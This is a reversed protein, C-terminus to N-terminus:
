SLGWSFPLCLTPLFPHKSLTLIVLFGVEKPPSRPYSTDLFWPRDLNMLSDQNLSPLITSLTLCLFCRLSKKWFSQTTQSGARTGLERLTLSVYVMWMNVQDTIKTYGTSVIYYTIHTRYFVPYSLIFNEYITDLIKETYLSKSM